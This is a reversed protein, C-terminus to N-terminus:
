RLDWRSVQVGPRVGFMASLRATRAQCRAVADPRTSEIMRNVARLIAHSIRDRRPMRRREAPTPRTATPTTM